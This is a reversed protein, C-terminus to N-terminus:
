FDYGNKRLIDKFILSFCKVNETCVIRASFALMDEKESCKLIRSALKRIIRDFDPFISKVSDMLVKCSVYLNVCGVFGTDELVIEFVPSSSIDFISM